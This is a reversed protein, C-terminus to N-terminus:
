NSSPDQSRIRVRHFFQFVSNPILSLAVLPLFRIKGKTSLLGSLQRARIASGMALEQKVRLAVTSEVFMKLSARTVQHNNDALAKIVIENAPSLCELTLEAKSLRIESPLVPESQATNEMIGGVGRVYIATQARSVAVEHSLAFKAWFATDAGVRESGFGDTELFSSRRIAAASSWILSRKSINASFYDIKEPKSKLQLSPFKKGVWWEAHSTSVLEATGFKDIISFLEAIHQPLWFDDADLFAVWDTDAAIVGTNRAFGEGQNEKYIYDVKPFQTQVVGSSGDTSGDDIVLIREPPLTQALVSAIARGV